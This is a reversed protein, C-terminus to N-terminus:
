RLRRAIIERARASAEEDLRVTTTRHLRRLRLGRRSRATLRVLVRRGERLWPDVADRLREATSRRGDVPAIHAPSEHVDLTPM